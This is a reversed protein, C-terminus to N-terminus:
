YCRTNSQATPPLLVDSHRGNAPPTASHASSIKGAMSDFLDDQVVDDIDEIDFAGVGAIM